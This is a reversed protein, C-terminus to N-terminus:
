KSIGCLFVIEIVLRRMIGGNMWRPKRPIIKKWDVSVIMNTGNVKGIAM